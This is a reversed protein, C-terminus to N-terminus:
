ERFFGDEIQRRSPDRDRRPDLMFAFSILAPLISSAMLYFSAGFSGSDKLSDSVDTDLNVGIPEFGSDVHSSVGEVIIAMFYLTSVIIGGVAILALVMHFSTKLKEFITFFGAIMTLLLLIMILGLSTVMYDGLEELEGTSEPEMERYADGLIGSWVELYRFEYLGYEITYERWISGDGKTGELHHITYWDDLGIALIILGMSLIPLLTGAIRRATRLALIIVGLPDELKGHEKSLMKLKPTFILITM